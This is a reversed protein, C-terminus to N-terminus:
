EFFCLCLALADVFADGWDECRLLLVETWAFLDQPAFGLSDALL